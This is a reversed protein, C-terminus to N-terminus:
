YAHLKLFQTLVQSISQWLDISLWLITQEANDKQPYPIAHM